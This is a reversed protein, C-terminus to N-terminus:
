YYGKATLHGYREILKEQEEMLIKWNFLTNKVENVTILIRNSSDAMANLIVDEITAWGGQMDKEPRDIYTATDLCVKEGVVPERYDM